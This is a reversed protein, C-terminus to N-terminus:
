TESDETVCVKVNDGIWGQAESFQSLFWALRIDLLAPITVQNVQRANKGQSLIAIEFGSRSVWSCSQSVASCPERVGVWRCNGLM